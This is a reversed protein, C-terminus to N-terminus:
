GSTAVVDDYNVVVTAATDSGIQVVGIPTSGTGVVWSRVLTGDLGLTMGGAAGTTVCLRVDHWQGIPLTATTTFTTGPLDARVSLRGASTMVLRGVSVKAATRLKLLVVNGSAPRATVLVSATLCVTPQAPVLTHQAYATRAVPAARVSPPSGSPPAITGDLSLGVVPSWAALGADFGDSFLQGGGGSAVTVPDSAVSPPSSNVGDSATVTYTHTTGGVLGTDSWTVSGTSASVVTGVASAGGDRYVSYTITTALDDTSAAWTLDVQGPVTSTAVPQGPVTPPTSDAPTARLLVSYDRGGSAEVADTFTGIREPTLANVTSGDGLQGADDFGWGWLQGGTTVALTQDRGADVHAVPPLGAVVVATPRDTTSGDGLEARGNEGWDMVTGDALLALSHDAGAAIAVADAVGIVQVPARRMTKTGDGLQGSSNLGWAWVTGDAKLALAHDRGAAVHVVGTLGSVQVPVDSSTTTGDGLEGSSNLGWSRVTGDALVALSLDRGGSVDVVTSLGTVQVPSTRLTTSGDGLQGSVNYGWARVTGDALLALSHYHGADVETADTLGPVAVPSLAAVRSGIGIQGDSDDGWAWVQGTADLALVHDRGGSVQAIDPLQGTPGFTARNSTAGDGLPGTAGAGVTWVTRQTAAVATGPVSVVAAAVLVLPGALALLRARYAM